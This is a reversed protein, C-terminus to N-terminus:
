KEQANPTLKTSTIANFSVKNIRGWESIDVLDLSLTAYMM